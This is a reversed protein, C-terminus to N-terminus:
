ETLYKGKHPVVRGMGQSHLLLSYLHGRQHASNQHMLNHFAREGLEGKLTSLPLFQGARRSPRGVHFHGHQCQYVEYKQRFRGTAWKATRRASDGTPYVRKPKGMSSLCRKSWFKM